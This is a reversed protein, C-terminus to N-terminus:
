EQTLKFKNATLVTAEDKPFIEFIASMHTVFVYKCNIDPFIQLIEKMGQAGERYATTQFTENLLVLSHPEIADMIAAIEKVEGEFRGAADADSFDKEASSFHTFIAGRISSKMTKACVFLGNQAFIIATAVARLFSTKGCNNDGRALISKHLDVDNTVINDVNKGENLLLMDYIETAFLTDEETDLVQPFCYHMGNKELRKAIDLAV